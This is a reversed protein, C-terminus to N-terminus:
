YEAGSAGAPACLVVLRAPLIPPEERLRVECGDRAAARSDHLGGIPSCEVSAAHGNPESDLKGVLLADVLEHVEADVEAVEERALRAEHLVRLAEDHEWATKASEVLQELRQRQHLGAGDRAKGDHEEPM